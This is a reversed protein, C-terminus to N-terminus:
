RGFEFVEFGGGGFGILIPVFEKASGSVEVIVAFTNGPFFLLQGTESGLTDDRCQQGREVVEFAGEVGRLFLSVLGGKDLAQLLHVALKSAGEFFEAQLLDGRVGPMGEIVDEHLPRDPWM